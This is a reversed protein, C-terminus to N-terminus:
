SAEEVDDLMQVGLQIVIDVALITKLAHEWTGHNTQEGHCIKHRGPDYEFNTMDKSSSYTYHMFYEASNYWLYAGSTQVSMMQIVKSKESEPKTINYSSLIEKKDERSIFQKMHTCDYLENILGGLQCMLISATSYYRGEEYVELAEKLAPKRERNIWEQDFWTKLIVSLMNNDYYDFICQKIEAIPYPEDETGINADCVDLIRDQLETDMEFYIPFNIASIVRMFKWRRRAEINITSFQIKRINIRILESVQQLMSTMPKIHKVLENKYIEQLSIGYHSVSSKVITTALVSMNPLTARLRTATQAATQLESYNISKNLARISATVSQPFSYSPLTKTISELNKIVQKDVSKAKQNEM